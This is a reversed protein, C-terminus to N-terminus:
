ATDRTRDHEENRSRQKGVLDPESLWIRKAVSAQSHLQTSSQTLGALGASGVSMIIGSLANWLGSLLSPSKNAVPTMIAIREVTATMSRM